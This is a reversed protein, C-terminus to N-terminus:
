ADYICTHVIALARAVIPPGLASDRVGQLAAENWELVVNEGSSARAQPARAGNVLLTALILFVAIAAGRLRRRGFSEIHLV